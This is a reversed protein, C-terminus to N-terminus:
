VVRAADGCSVVRDSKPVGTRWQAAWVIQAHTPECPLATFVGVEIVPVVYPSSVPSVDLTDTASKGGVQLAQGCRIQM